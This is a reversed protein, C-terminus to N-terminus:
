RTGHPIDQTITTFITNIYGTVEQLTAGLFSRAPLTTTWSSRIETGQRIRMSRIIAGAQGMTLNSTIWLWSVPRRDSGGQPRAKFGLDRLAKAQKKSAMATSGYSGANGTRSRATVTETAGYQHKAAIMGTRPSKFGVTAKLGDNNVVAMKRVMKSLMKRRRPKQRPAYAAGQLDTQSRVRKLSDKRVEQAVKNLIRRRKSSPMALLEFQRRLPLLGQVDVYLQSM